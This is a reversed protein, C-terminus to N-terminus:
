RGAGRKRKLEATLKLITQCLEPVIGPDTKTVRNADGGNMRAIIGVCRDLHLRATTEIAALESDIM